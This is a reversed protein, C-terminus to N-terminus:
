GYVRTEIRVRNGRVAGAVGSFSLEEVKLLNHCACALLDADSHADSNALTSVPGAPIDFTGYRANFAEIGDIDQRQRLSEFFPHPLISLAGRERAEALTDDISRWPRLPEDIGIVVLHGDDTSVEMGALVLIPLGNTRAYDVAMRGPRLDDHDTVAICDLGTRVAADVHRSVLTEVPLGDFQGDGIAHTHLDARIKM